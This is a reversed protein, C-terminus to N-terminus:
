RKDKYREDRDSDRKGKELDREFDAPRVFRVVGDGLLADQWPMGTGSPERNFHVKEGIKLTGTAPNSSEPDSIWQTDKIVRYPLNYPQADADFSSRDQRGGSRHVGEEDIKLGGQWENVEREAEARTYGYREQLRGILLERDGRVTDLDEDTLRTWRGKVRGRHRNWNGSIRDWDM